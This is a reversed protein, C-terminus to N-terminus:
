HLKGQQHLKDFTEDIFQRDRARLPYVKNTKFVAGPKLNISMWEEESINVIIGFNQFVNQFAEVLSALGIVNKRYATVDSSLVHKLKLDIQFVVSIVFSLVSSTVNALGIQSTITPLVAIAYAAAATAFGVALQKKWSRGTM